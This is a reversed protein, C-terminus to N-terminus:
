GEGETRWVADIERHRENERRDRVRLARLLRAARERDGRVVFEEAAALARAEWADHVALEQRLAMAQVKAEEIVGRESLPRGPRRRLATGKM